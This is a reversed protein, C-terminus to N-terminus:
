VLTFVKKFRVQMLRIDHSIQLKLLFVRKIQWPNKYRSRAELSSRSRDHFNRNSENSMCSQDRASYWWSQLPKFWGM